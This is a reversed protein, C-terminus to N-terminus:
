ADQMARDRIPAMEPDVHAPGSKGVHAHALRDGFADIPLAEVIGDIVAILRSATESMKGSEHAAGVSAATGSRDAVRARTAPPRLTCGRRM